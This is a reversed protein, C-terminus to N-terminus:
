LFPNEADSRVRTRGTAARERSLRTQEQYDLSLREAREGRGRESRWVDLMEDVLQMDGQYDRLIGGVDFLEEVVEAERDYYLGAGRMSQQARKIAKARKAAADRDDSVPVASREAASAAEEVHKLLVPWGSRVIGQEYRDAILALADSVLGPHREFIDLVRQELVASPADAVREAFADRLENWVYEPM